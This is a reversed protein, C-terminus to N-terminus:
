VIAWLEDGCLEQVEQFRMTNLMNVCDDVIWRLIAEHLDEVMHEFVAHLTELIGGELRLMVAQLRARTPLTADM